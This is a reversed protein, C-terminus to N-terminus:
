GGNWSVLKMGCLSDARAQGDEALVTGGQAVGRGLARAGCSICEVELLPPEVELELSRLIQPSLHRENSGASM